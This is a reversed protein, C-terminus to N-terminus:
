IRMGPLRSPRYRREPGIGLSILLLVAPVSVKECLKVCYKLNDSCLQVFFSSERKRVRSLIVLLLLGASLFPETCFALAHGGSFLLM